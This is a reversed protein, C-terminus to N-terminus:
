PSRPSSRPTPDGKQNRREFDDEGLERYGQGTEPSGTPWSSFPTVSPSSQENRAAVSPTALRGLGGSPTGASLSRSGKRTNGSLRKGSGERSGPCMPAWSALHAASPFQNMEADIEAVVQVAAV